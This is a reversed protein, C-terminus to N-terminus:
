IELDRAKVILPLFPFFLFIIGCVFVTIQKEQGQTAITLLILGIIYLYICITMYAILVKFIFNKTKYPRRAISHRRLYFLGPHFLICTTSCLMLVGGIAPILKNEYEFSKSGLFLVIFLSLLGISLLRDLSKALCKAPCKQNAILRCFLDFDYKETPTTNIRQTSKLLSNLRSISLNEETPIQLKKDKRENEQVRMIGNDVFPHERETDKRKLETLVSNICSGLDKQETCHQKFHHNWIKTKLAYSHFMTQTGQFHKMVTNAPRETPLPEGNVIYKLIKLCKRHHQSLNSTCALEEETFTVKFLHGERPMLMVKGLREIYGLDTFIFRDFSPLVDVHPKVDLKLAPCLDVSVEMTSSNEDKREWVFRIMLAPGHSEPKLCRMCLQGTAMKIPARSNLKVAENMASCFLDRVGQKLCPLWHSGRIYDDDSFEQFLSRTKDDELKVNMYSRNKDKPHIPILSVAGPKSLAELILIYDFECPRIIQTEERASGVPIVEEIKLRSDIEEITKALLTVQQKVSAHIDNIEELSFKNNLDLKKDYLENLFRNLTGERELTNKVNTMQGFEVDVIDNCEVNLDTDTANSASFHEM